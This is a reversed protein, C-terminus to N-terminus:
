KKPFSLLEQLPLIGSYEELQREFIPHAILMDNVLFAQPNLNKLVKKKKQFPRWPRTFLRERWTRNVLEYEPDCAYLSYIIRPPFQIKPTEIDLKEKAKLLTEYTLNSM